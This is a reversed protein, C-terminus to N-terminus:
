FFFSNRRTKKSFDRRLEERNEQLWAQITHRWFCFRTTKLILAPFTPNNAFRTPVSAIYCAFPIIRPIRFVITCLLLTRKTHRVHEPLHILRILTLILHSTALSPSFHLVLSYVLTGVRFNILCEPIQERLPRRTTPRM